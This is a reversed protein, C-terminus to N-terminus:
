WRFAAQEPADQHADVDVDADGPARAANGPWPGYRDQLVRVMAKLEQRYAEPPYKGRYLREYRPQMEPFERALFAMFHTRTGEQLYMVNCGVFRAGHEAIAQVTRELKAPASSFGPVIPAMLAGVNIGAAALESV